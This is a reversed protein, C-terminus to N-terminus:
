PNGLYTLVSTRADHWHYLLKAEYGQEIVFLGFKVQQESLGGDKEKERGPKKMEIWLGIKGNRPVPLLYDWVGAKAGEAKLQAAIAPHRKGGNPIHILWALEPITASQLDRWKTLAKCHDSEVCARKM